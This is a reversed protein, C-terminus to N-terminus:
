IHLSCLPVTFLCFALKWKIEDHMWILLLNIRNFIASSWQMFSFFLLRLTLVLIPFPGQTFALYCFIVFFCISDTLIGNMRKFLCSKLKLNEVQVASQGVLSKLAVGDIEPLRSIQIQVTTASHWKWEKTWKIKKTWKREKTPQIIQKCESAVSIWIKICTWNNPSCWHKSSSECRCLCYSWESSVFEPRNLAFWVGRTHCNGSILM